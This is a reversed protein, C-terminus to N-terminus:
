RTTSARQSRDMRRQHHLARWGSVRAARGRSEISGPLLDLEARALTVATAAALHKAQQERTAAGTATAGTDTEQSEEAPTAPGPQDKILATMLYILVYLVVLTLFLMLIGIGSVALTIVLPDEV